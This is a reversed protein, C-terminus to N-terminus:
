YKNKAITIINRGNLWNTKNQRQTYFSDVIELDCNKLLNKIDSNTFAYIYRKFIEPKNHEQYNVRMDKLGLSTIPIDFISEGKNFFKQWTNTAILKWFKRQWLNWNTMLLVGNPKLKSKLQEVAQKQLPKPIHQLVAVCLIVDFKKNIQSLDLINAVAFETQVGETQRGRAKEILKDSIDVGFYNVQLDKLLDLNRGNGCGVDLVDQNKQLFQKFYVFDDWLKWRSLDFHDAIENYTNKVSEIITLAEDRNM